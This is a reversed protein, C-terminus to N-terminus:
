PVYGAFSEGSPDLARMVQELYGYFDPAPVMTESVPGVVWNPDNDARPDLRDPGKIWGGILRVMGGLDLKVILSGDDFAEGGITLIMRGVDGTSQGAARDMGDTFRTACHTIRYCERLVHLGTSEDIVRGLSGRYGLVRRYHGCIGLIVTADDTGIGFVQDAVWIQFRGFSERLWKGSDPHRAWEIRFSERSGVM